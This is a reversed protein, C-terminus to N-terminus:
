GARLELVPVTGLKWWTEHQDYSRWSQGLHFQWQSDGPYDDYGFIDKWAMLDGEHLLPDIRQLPLTISLCRHEGDMETGM